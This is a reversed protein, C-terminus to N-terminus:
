KVLTKGIAKTVTFTKDTNFTVVYSVSKVFVYGNGDVVDFNVSDVAVNNYKVAFEATNSDITADITGSLVNNSLQTWTLEPQSDKVTFTTQSIMKSVAKVVGATSDADYANYLRVIYTGAAAKKAVTSDLTVADFAGNAVGTTVVSGNYILEYYLNLAEGDTVIAELNAPAKDVAVAARVQYGNVTEVVEITQASKAHGDATIVTDLEDKGLELQYASTGDARTVAKTVVTLNVANAKKATDQVKIVLSGEGGNADDAAGFDTADITFSVKGADAGTATNANQDVGGVKTDKYLSGGIAEITVNTAGQINQGYQDKLVVDIALEDVFKGNDDSAAVNLNTKSAKAELVTVARAPKVTVPIFAIPDKATANQYVLINASGQNVPILESPYANGIMVVNNNSSKFVLGGDEAVEKKDSTKIRFDIFYGSDGAAIFDNPTYAKDFDTQATGNAVITWDTDTVTVAPTAVSVITATAEKKCEVWNNNADSYWYSYEAKVNVSKDKFFFLIEKDLITSVAADSTTFTVNGAAQTIEVGDKNLLQYKIETPVNEIAEKTLIVISAVDESGTKAGSIEKVQGNYDIYYTKDAAITGWLELAVKKADTSDVTASKVAVAMKADGILTYVSFDAASVKDKMDADFTVNVVKDNAQAASVVNAAATLEYEASATVGTFTKSQNTTVQVKFTGAKKVTVVGKDDVAAVDDGATIKYAVKDKSENGKADKQAVELAIGDFGIKKDEPINTVEVTKANAKVTVAIEGIKEGDVKVTFTAKGAKRAFIRNYNKSYFAVDRDSSKISVKADDALDNIVVKFSKYYKSVRTAKEYSEGIYGLAAYKIADDQKVFITKKTKALTPEAAKAQQAPISGIALVLAMVLALNKFFKKM